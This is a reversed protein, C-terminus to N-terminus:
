KGAEVVVTVNSVAGAEGQRRLRAAALMAPVGNTTLAANAKRTAQAPTVVKAADVFVEGDEHVTTRTMANTDVSTSVVKGHWRRRGEKTTTDRLYLGRLSRIADAVDNATWGENRIVALTEAIIADAESPAANTEAACIPLAVIASSLAFLVTKNM